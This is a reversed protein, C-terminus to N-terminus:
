AGCRVAVKFGSLRLHRWRDQSFELGGSRRIVTALLGGCCVVGDADADANAGLRGDLNTTKCSPHGATQYRAPTTALVRKAETGSQDMARPIFELVRNVM